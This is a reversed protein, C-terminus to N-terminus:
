SDKLVALEMTKVRSQLCIMCSKSVHPHIVDFFLLVKSWEGQEQAVPPLSSRNFPILLCDVVLLSPIFHFFITDFAFHYPNTHHEVTNLFDLVRRCDDLIKTLHPLYDRFVAVKIL